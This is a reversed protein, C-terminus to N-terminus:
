RGGVIERWGVVLQLPTTVGRAQQRDAQFVMVSGDASLDWQHTTSRARLIDVAFELRETGFDLGGGTETVAVSMIGREGVFLIKSGDPWWRPQIGDGSSVQWSGGDPDISQVFIRPDDSGTAVAMYAIWRGDPSFAAHTDFSEDAVLPFAADPEDVPLIWVDRSAGATSFAILRGDRSWDHPLADDYADLTLVVDRAGRTSRVVMAGTQGLSYALRDGDPDWVPDDALGADAFRSLTARKLDRIWLGPQDGDASFIAMALHRGDPSLNPDDAWGEDVRFRGTVRGEADTVIFASDASGEGAAFVLRGDDAVSYAGSGFNEAIIVAEAVLVEEGLFEGRDPAFPRAWLADDRGYFLHGDGYDAREVNELLVKEDAKSDVSRWRLEDVDGGGRLYIFREGGPLAVPWRHSSSLTDMRTVAVPAGGTAPVIQLHDLVEFAFIIRDDETWTGGRGRPADCIATAVGGTADIRRMTGGAFFGIRRSDPSWFPYSADETGTLVYAAPSDVRRVWLQRTGATDVAAFAIRTGDPSIALHSGLDLLIRHGPPPLVTAHVAGGTSPPGASLRAALYGGIAALMVAAAAAPLLWRPMAGRAEPAAIMSSTTPMEDLDSELLVRAEGIDRLRRAPRKQLCREVLWRLAPPTAAPLAELDPETKLVEALTDSITEGAFLRGGTLMEYVIVGFAWIDARRDVDHGRAQEPSMYAATGLITGAQTMAATLTPSHDPDGEAASEGAFARALGFDLIKVTGDTALKVNAPKLDRHVVGREHAQELGEALQRAIRVVDELPLPGEVIRQELDVGEALELVLFVQDQDEEIGHIAAISPHNLSALVRAERRFRAMRESDRAFDPPLLKLAVERDLRTDRARHVEGMGGKGLLDLIEYHALRRGTM